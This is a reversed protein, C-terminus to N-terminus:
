LYIDKNPQSEVVKENDFMPSAEEQNSFNAKRDSETSAFIAPNYNM